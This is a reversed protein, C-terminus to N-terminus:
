TRQTRELGIFQHNSEKFEKIMKEEKEGLDDLEAQMEKFDPLPTKLGPAPVYAKEADMLETVIGKEGKLFRYGYLDKKIESPFHLYIESAFSELHSFDNKYIKFGLAKNSFIGRLRTKDGKFIGAFTPFGHLYFQDLSLDEM